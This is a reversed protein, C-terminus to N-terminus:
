TSHFASVFLGRIDCTLRDPCDTVKLNVTLHPKLFYPRKLLSCESNVELNWKWPYVPVSVSLFVLACM